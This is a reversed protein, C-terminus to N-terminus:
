AVGSPLKIIEIEVAEPNEAPLLSVGGATQRARKQEYMAADAGELMQTLSKRNSPDTFAAGVSMSLRYPRQQEAVRADALTRIRRRLPELNGPAFDFSFAVFEDGGLRAVVDSSALAATIVSAADKLADDGADHGLEDNIRKMGNLDVFILAAPRQDRGAVAHAQGGVELFGRRNYLKTLEDRLSLHRLEEAQASLLEETRLRDTVDRGVTHINKPKGGTDEQVTWRVEFFRYEGSKHRLRYVSSGEELTGDSVDRLIRGAEQLDDPHMLAKAPLAVLEDPTYGLLRLASPSAYTTAGNLDLLRVLDSGNETLLRYHAESTALEEATRHLLKVDRNITLWAALTLLVSLLSGASIGWSALRRASDAERRRENLHVQEQRSMEACIARMQDMLEKGRGTVVLAMAGALDGNRRLRITDDIFATKDSAVRELAALRRVQAADTSVARELDALHRPIGARAAENPQLFDDDGTLIYGRQSTEADKFLSLTGDIAAQVALTQEVARVAAVYRTGSTYALAAVGAMLLLVVAWVMRTAKLPNKM